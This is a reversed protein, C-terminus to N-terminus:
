KRAESTVDRTECPGYKPLVLTSVRVGDNLLRIDTAENKDATSLEVRFLVLNSVFVVRKKHEQKTKANWKPLILMQTHTETSM